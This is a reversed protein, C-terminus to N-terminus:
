GEEPLLGPLLEVVALRGPVDVRRLLAAPVLVERGSADEIVLVDPAGTRWIDRIRGVPTGDEGLVRCGLLEYGYHEGPALPELQGPEAWVQCGRLAEAASRDDVGELTVRLEGPRGPSLARVAYAVAPGGEASLWLERAAALTEPGEARCRVRLEGRLGHAGLVSGVPVRAPPETSSKSGSTPGM